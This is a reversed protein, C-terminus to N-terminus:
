WAARVAPQDLAGLPLAAMSRTLNWLVGLEDAVARPSPLRSGGHGFMGTVFYRHRHGAPLMARLQAAERYCVVTDTRGHAIVVPAKLRALPAAPDCFALYRTARALADLLIERTGASLGCGQLFLPRLPAPLSEEALRRAIPLLAEVRKLEARNWTRLCMARWAASLQVQEDDGVGLYEVLNLFVGPPNTPDHPLRVLEGGHEWEGLTAFRCVRRFDAFGGFLFLGRVRDAYRPDGCLSIAPNSGFSVSFVSPPPLAERGALAELADFALMLDAAANASARLALHDPLFPALVLFGAEALVRGLRDMRPDAPGQPHLGPSILYAALPRRRPRYLMARLQRHPGLWREECAAGTPARRSWPGLWRILRSVPAILV